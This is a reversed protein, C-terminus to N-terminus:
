RDAAEAAAALKQRYLAQLEDQLAAEDAETIAGNDGAFIDEFDGQEVYDAPPAYRTLAESHRPFSLKERSSGRALVVHKDHVAHLRLNAAIEDNLGYLQAAEGRRAIIASSLQAESAVSVGRLELPLSTEEAVVVTEPEQAPSQAVGFLNKTVILNVEGPISGSSQEPPATFVPAEVLPPTPQIFFVTATSALSYIIGLSFLGVLLVAGWDVLWQFWM